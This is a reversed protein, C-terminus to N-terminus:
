VMSLCHWMQRDLYIQFVRPKLWFPHIRRERPGCTPSSFGLWWYAAAGRRVELLYMGKTCKRDLLCCVTLGFGTARTGETEGKPGARDEWREKRGKWLRIHIPLYASLSYFNWGGCRGGLAHSDRKRLGPPDNDTGFEKFSICKKKRTGAESQAPPLRVQRPILLTAHLLWLRIYDLLLIVICALIEPDM